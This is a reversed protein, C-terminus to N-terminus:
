KVLCRFTCSLFIAAIFILVTQVFNGGRLGPRFGLPCGSCYNYAALTKYGNFHHHPKLEDNLFMIQAPNKQNIMPFSRKPSNMCM